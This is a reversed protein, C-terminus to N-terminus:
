GLRRQQMHERHARKIVRSCALLYKWPDAIIYFNIPVIMREYARKQMARAALAKSMNGVHASM